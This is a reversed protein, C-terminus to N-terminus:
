KLIGKSESEYLNFFKKSTNTVIEAFKDLPLNHLEALKAATHILLAPENPRIKRVPEPSIYPCDTEIMLRDPPIMRAVERLADAKKFTITGTFSVFYGRRLVRETQKANGGYCHVVVGKLRGAYEALIAMTDDFAERTHIVVPKQLEAAMDLHARFIRQQDEASSHMYHYDLGTEGVAVIEQRGLADKLLVLDADTIKRAEHPHYGLAAWLNDYQCTLDLVKPIEQPETGFTIWGTAGAARSRSLVADVQEVLGPFTLHAHTDIWQM